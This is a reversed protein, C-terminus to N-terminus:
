AGDRTVLRIALEDTVEVGSVEHVLATMAGAQRAIDLKEMAVSGQVFVDFVREGPVAGALEAFCVFRIATASSTLTRSGSTERSGSRRATINTGPLQWVALRTWAWRMRM